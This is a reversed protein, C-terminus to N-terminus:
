SDGHLRPPDLVVAYQVTATWGGQTYRWTSSGCWGEPTLNEADWHDPHAVLPVGVGDPYNDLMCQMALDRAQAVPDDDVEAPASYVVATAAVALIAVFVLLIGFVMKLKM